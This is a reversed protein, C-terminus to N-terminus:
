YGLGRRVQDVAYYLYQDSTRATVRLVRWGLQILENQKVRDHLFAPDDSHYRWGDVELILKAHPWAFDVRAILRSGHFVEYQTIPVPLGAKRLAVRVRSEPVSGSRPDVYTLFENIRSSAPHWRLRRAEALLETLEIKRARLAADATAVAEDLPLSVSLDLLTRAVSTTPLGFVLPCEEVTLQRRHATIGERATRKVNRPVTVHVGRQDPVPLEYLAAASAHSIAVRPGYIAVAFREADLDQPLREAPTYLGPARRVWEGRAVKSQLAGRDIGTLAAQHATFIGARVAAEAARREWTPADM